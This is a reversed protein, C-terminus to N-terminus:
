ASRERRCLCMCCVEMGMCYVMMEYQKLNNM